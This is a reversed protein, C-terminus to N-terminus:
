RRRFCIFIFLFFESLHNEANSTSFLFCFMQCNGLFHFFGVIGLCTIDEQMKVAYVICNLFLLCVCARLYICTSFTLTLARRFEEPGEGGEEQVYVSMPYRSITFGGGM